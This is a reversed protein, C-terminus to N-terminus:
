KAEKAQLQAITISTGQNSGVCVSELIHTLNLKGDNVSLLLFDGGGEKEERLPSSPLQTTEEVTLPSSFTILNTTGKTEAITLPYISASTYYSVFQQSIAMRSSKPERANLADVYWIEWALILLSIV